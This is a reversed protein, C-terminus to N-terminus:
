FYKQLVQIVKNPCRIPKGTAANLFVLEVSGINLLTEAENYIEHHFIIRSAPMERIETKITLLDDYFAPRIYKIQLSLVPMLIGNEELDKYSIDLNRLAEVRGVEYYLPYNGYYVYGMRDTEGYRVRVQIKHLYM